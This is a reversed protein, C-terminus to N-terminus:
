YYGKNVLLPKAELSLYNKLNTLGEQYARAAFGMLEVSTFGREFLGMYKMAGWQLVSHFEPPFKIDTETGTLTLTNVSPIYRVIVENTGTSQWPWVCLQTRDKVFYYDPSGRAAMLPDLIDTVYDWSTASLQNRTAANYVRLIRHPVPALTGQGTTNDLLVTQETALFNQNVESIVLYVDRYADNLFSLAITELQTDPANENISMRIINTVLDAPTM